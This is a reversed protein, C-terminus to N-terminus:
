QRRQLAYLYVPQGTYYNDYVDYRSLLALDGAKGLVQAVEPEVPGISVYHTPEYLRVRAALDAAGLRDNVAPIGTELSISDAVNGMLVPGPQGSHPATRQRIDACMRIFTFQLDGMHAAITQVNLALSLLILLTFLPRGTRGDQPWRLHQIICAAGMALSMHIPLLYRPPQYATSGLSVIRCLAWLLAIAPLPSARFTPNSFLLLISGGVVAIALIPDVQFAHYAAAATNRM